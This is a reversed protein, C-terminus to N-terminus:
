CLILIWFISLIWVVWCYALHGPKFISLLTSYVNKWLLCIYPYHAYSFTNLMVLWWPFAFWVWLSPNGQCNLPQTHVGVASPMFEIWPWPVLIRCAAEQLWFIDGYWRMGTLIAIVSFVVFLLHQCPHPSFSVSM